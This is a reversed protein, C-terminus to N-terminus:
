WPRTSWDRVTVGQQCLRILVAGHYGTHLVKYANDATPKAPEPPNKGRRCSVVMVPAGAWQRFEAPCSNRSGHHPAMVVDYHRKPHELLRSMGQRELDGPLLLGSAGYRLEVVLSNANDSGALGARPPNLFELHVGAPGAQLRDGSGVTQIRVGQRQLDALLDRIMPQQWSQRYMVRSIVVRDISFQRALAPLGNFHDSDAHSIIVADLHRIRNRWLATAAAQQASRPSGFSGCDYLVSAGGPLQLLVCGGHGVDLITAAVAQRQRAARGAQWDPIAWGIVLWTLLAMALYRFKVRPLALFVTALALYFVVVAARPPGATWWFGGPISQCTQVVYEISALAAHCGSAMGGALLPLWGGFLLIGLGCILGFSLPILLLPNALLAVPTVLHFQSAVAPMAFLWILGSAALASRVALRVKRWCREGTTLSSEILRDIPDESPAPVIWHRGYILVGVALFSLQAGAGFLDVPNILLVVLGALALSNLSFPTRGILQGCCYVCVLIAARTVPPRFEVIGAYAVVFVMTLWLGQRRSLLGLRPLLLFLGALIGVHLGSIALLHVTGSAQFRDQFEQDLQDRNGLLMASALAATQEPLYHWLWGDLTSRVHGVARSLPTGPETPQLCQPFAVHIWCLIRQGRFYRRLDFEGPNSASPVRSLRGTVELGDGGAWGSVRGEVFVAVRGSARRFQGRDRIADVAMVLRSRIGRQHSYREQHPDAAIWRPQGVVRGRLVVPTSDASAFAGIDQPGAVNWHLHHWAAAVSLVAGLLLFSSLRERERRWVIWWMGMVLLFCVPWLIGHPQVLRDLTIGSAAAVSVRLLPQYTLPPRDVIL